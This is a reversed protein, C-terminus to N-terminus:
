RKDFLKAKAHMNFGKWKVVIVFVENALKM